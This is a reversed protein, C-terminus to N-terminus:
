YPSLTGGPRQQKELETQVATSIARGLAYAQEGGGTSSTEGTTMNVNVSVNNGGMGGSMEVPISRGNPLPVVAETGHLVAPYGSAPGDSVGGTGFSRYGPSSMVGGDRGTPGLGPFFPISGMIAIAAQQALVQAMASLISKTMNLFADKLNTTGEILGQIATQMGSEFSDRFQMEVQALLDAEKEAIRIKSDLFDLDSQLKVAEADTEEMGLRKKEAILTEINFKEVGLENIKQEKKIQGARLKSEGILLNNVATQHERKNTIMRMEVDRLEKARELAAAGLQGLVRQDAAADFIQVPERTETSYVTTGQRGAMIEDFKKQGIFQALNQGTASDVVQEFSEDMDKFAQLDLKALGSLADGYDKISRTIVSLGTSPAKMKALAKGFEQTANTLIQTTTTYEGLEQTALTGDTGLEKLAEQVETITKASIGSLSGSEKIASNFIEIRKTIDEFFKSGSKLRSQQLELSAITESLITRQSDGLIRKPVLNSGSQKTQEMGGFADAGGAFSFNAYFNALQNIKSLLTQTHKLNKNLVGLEKNQEKFNNAIKASTREFELIAPDKFKDLLQSMVGVISIILGAYGIFGVLRSLQLGAFQMFGFFKGANATMIQFEAKFKLGISKFVGASQMELQTNYAKMINLSKLAELRMNRHADSFKTTQANMSRAFQSQQAKDSALNSFKSKGETNLIDTIRGQAAGAAAQLDPTPAAPAVARIIGTGLLAFAGTLAYINKALGGAIFEAIGTLGGKIKNILDDFTKALKTFENLGTNFEGFKSEGQELVENVVAQSKEFINLDKAAKGIQAGYKQAAIELRLIIGLEDLLEPEAKTVGRVLRNLSDTLDRGLAISANKAVVGIRSLQDSTVGAAKAIAVSQAAEAFALQGGTADQLRSTLLKLSTGTVTAYERQGEILIRFNAADQLFRFAAGIAFVNAALTAYAPVLGGTIGQAMKSFNKTTNSSQQSAGKFNRNLTQESRNLNDTAKKAGKLKGELLKLSGDDTVEFVLKAGKVKKSM